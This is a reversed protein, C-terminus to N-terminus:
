QDRELALVTNSIQYISGSGRLDQSTIRGGEEHPKGSTKRLHCVAVLNCNTEEVLSRLKTMLIDIEKREDGTEQGSIVISIHDLYV